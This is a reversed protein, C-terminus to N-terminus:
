GADVRNRVIDLSGERSEITAMTVALQADYTRLALYSNSGLGAISLQVTDRAYRTALAQALAAENARRM